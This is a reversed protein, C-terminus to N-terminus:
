YTESARGSSVLLGFLKPMRFGRGGRPPLGSLRPRQVLEAVECPAGGGGGRGGARVVSKAWSDVMPHAKKGAELLLGALRSDGKTVEVTESPSLFAPHMADELGVEVCCGNIAKSDSIDFDKKNKFLTEIPYAM